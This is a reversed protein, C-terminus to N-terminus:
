SIINYRNAYLKEVFLQLWTTEFLHPQFYESLQTMILDPNGCPIIAKFPNLDMNLNIAIGHYTYGQKIKLGISAIKKNGIYVGRAKPDGYADIGYKRLIELTTEELVEVLRRPSLNWIDLQILPYVIFQGPGHYTVQGGRDTEVIPISNNYRIHSDLSLRGKTYVPYHELAWIECPLGSLIHSLMKQHILSYDCLGLQKVPISFNKKVISM